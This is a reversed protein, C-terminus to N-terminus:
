ACPYLNLRSIKCIMATYIKIDPLPARVIIKKLHSYTMYTHLLIFFTSRFLKECYTQPKGNYNFILSKRFHYRLTENVILVLINLIIFM